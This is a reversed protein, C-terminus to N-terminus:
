LPKVYEKNFDTLDSYKFESYLSDLKNICCLFITTDIQWPKHENINSQWLIPLNLYEFVYIETFYM